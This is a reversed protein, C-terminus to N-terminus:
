RRKQLEKFIDDPEVGIEKLVVWLHFILDAAEYQVEEKSRNKAGIIVEAAEEGVKKCMKDIGKEFLYNTYSGEKPNILRDSIVDFVEYLINPNPTSKVDIQEGALNRYFCSYNNTHCASDVQEVKILLCDEDCDVLIEKVYQFHGSEEGKVWIKDRSRSFYTAKGTEQTLKLSEENMYAQMLVAGTRYDQTVVPILGKEDFKLTM